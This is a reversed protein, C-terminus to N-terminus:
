SLVTNLIKKHVQVMIRDDIREGDTFTPGCKIHPCKAISINSEDNLTDISKIDVSPLSTFEINLKYMLRMLAVDDLYAHNWYRKNRCVLKMSEYNLIIFSGSAGTPSTHPLSKGGYFPIKVIEETLLKRM